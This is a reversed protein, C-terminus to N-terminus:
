KISQNCGLKFTHEFRTRVVKGTNSSVHMKDIELSFILNRLFISSYERSM